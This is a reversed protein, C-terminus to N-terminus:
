KRQKNKRQRSQRAKRTARRKGGIKPGMTASYHNPTVPSGVYPSFSTGTNDNPRQQYFVDPNGSTQAAAVSM